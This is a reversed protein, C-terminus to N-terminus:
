PRTALMASIRDAAKQMRPLIRAKIDAVSTRQAQGGVNLGAVVDGGRGRIPVAASILGDELEQNVIAYGQRRVQAVIADLEDLDTVTRSTRAERKGAAMRSRADEPSLGALLVRGMSTCYAPLRSGVGLNVSMIKTTPVRLVYVIDSGDLVGASSSERVDQVLDEIVPQALSWVPVSSLYAYGLDLVRATLRFHKGDSEVYGLNRLTLLIRRTGARDIQARASVETLTPNPPSLAFARIVQLGRAFSRVFADGPRLDVAAEAVESNRHEQLVSVM